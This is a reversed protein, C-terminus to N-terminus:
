HRFLEYDAELSVDQEVYDTNHKQYSTCLYLGYVKGVWCVWHKGQDVQAEQIEYNTVAASM